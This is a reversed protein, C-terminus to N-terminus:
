KQNARKVKPRRSPNKQIGLDFSKGRTEMMVGEKLWPAKRSEILGSLNNYILKLYIPSTASGLIIFFTITSAVQAREYTSAIYIYSVINPMAIM